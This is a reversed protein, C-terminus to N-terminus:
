SCRDRSYVICIYFLPLIMLDRKLSCSIMGRMFINGYMEFGAMVARFVSSSQKELILRIESCYNDRSDIDFKISSSVNTHTSGGFEDNIVDNSINIWHKTVYNKCQVVINKYYESDATNYIAYSTPSIFLSTEKKIKYTVFSNEYGVLSVYM